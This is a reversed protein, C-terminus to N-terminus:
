SQQVSKKQENQFALETNAIVLEAARKRSRIRLNTRHIIRGCAATRTKLILLANMKKLSEEAKANPLGGFGCYHM